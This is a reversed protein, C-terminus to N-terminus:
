PRDLEYGRRRRSGARRDRPRIVFYPASREDKFDSATMFVYIFLSIFVVVTNMVISTVSYAVFRDVIVHSHFGDPTGNAFEAERHRVRKM